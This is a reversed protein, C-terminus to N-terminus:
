QYLYRKIKETPTKEFEKNQVEFGHVQSFDALHRNTEAVLRQFAGRIRTQIEHDTLGALHLGRMLAEDDPVLIAVLRGHDRQVVLSELVYTSENLLNEIEEPYINEGSPGLIVNKSRGKLYLFGDADLHGLDGTKLWGDGDFLAATAEENKYYGRTVNPGKVYVEGVGTGPQPDHIKMTVGDIAYGCSQFRGEDLRSGTILPSCETMGYGMIYPFGGERMFAEVDPNLPAGGCVLSRLRGGFARHLKAAAMRHIRKRLAPFRSLNRLIFSNDIKPRVMRFYLKEMILPVSPVLTPRVKEFAELLLKPSPKAGLYTISAGGAMPTLFGCTCEYTHALPLLSLFRDRSSISVMALIAKVNSLINNQTLMVGKSQGTTGSTYVLAALDDPKSTAGQRRERRAGSSFVLTAREKIAEMKQQLAKLLKPVKNLDITRFDELLFIKEPHPYTVDGLKELMAAEVFAIRADSMNIINHVASTTFNTLVPVAVAGYTVCALYVLGWHISNNGLIAVKEGPRLGCNRFLQHIGAIEDRAESYTVARGDVECLFPHSGHDRLALDVYEALTRTGTYSM